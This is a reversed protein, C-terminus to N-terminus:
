HTARNVYEARLKSYVVRQGSYLSYYGSLLYSVACALAFLLLSGSGFLEISLVLAALPCNVMGCFLAVLGIAAAFGPDLGLLGGFACGFTAGVFFTPVIEGGKFGAGLTIATLLIKLLFAYPKADGNLAKEIINMGAGNYDRGVLLSLVVVVVGGLAVRLYPNQTIRGYVAPTKHMVWCFLVAV